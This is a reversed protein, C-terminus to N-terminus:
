RSLKLEYSAIALFMACSLQMSQVSQMSQKCHLTRPSVSPAPTYTLLFWCASKLQCALCGHPHQIPCALPVITLVLLFGSNFSALKEMFRSILPNLEHACDSFLQM